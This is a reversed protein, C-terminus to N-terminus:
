RGAEVLTALIKGAHNEGRDGVLPLWFELRPQLDADRASARGRLWRDIGAGDLLPLPPEAGWDFRQRCERVGPQNWRRRWQVPDLDARSGLLIVESAEPHPHVLWVREFADRFGALIAAFERVRIRYLQLWHVAVGEPELRSAVLRYFEPTFLPASYPLWPESPQCIITQWRRSERHLYARADAFEIHPGEGGSPFLREFEWPFAVRGAPSRLAALVEPEVEIATIRGRHSAAAAAVTTGGGVGVVLGEDAGGHFLTPLIGLLVQTPLDAFSPAGPDIPSTGEVRGGVKLFCTNEQTWREITVRALRGERSYLVERQRYGELAHGSRIDERNWQFVGAGVLSEDLGGALLSGLGALLAAATTIALQPRPLEARWAFGATLAAVATVVATGVLTTLSGLAPILFLGAALAGITGGLFGTAQLVGAERALQAEDRSWGAALAPFLLGAACSAPLVCVIVAVIKVSLVTAGTTGVVALTKVYAGPTGAICVMAIVQTVAWASWALPILAGAGLRRVLGPVMLSGLAGGVLLAAAAMGLVLLSTGLIEGLLRVWTVQLVFTIIGSVLAQTSRSGAHDARVTAQKSRRSHERAGRATMAVAVLILVAVACGRSGFAPLVLVPTVLAGVASGLDLSAVWRGTRRMVQDPELTGSRFWAPVAGGLALAPFVLPLAVLLKGGVTGLGAWGESWAPLAWLTWLHVFLASVVALASWTRPALRIRAALASGLAAGLLFLAITISIGDLDSGLVHGLARAWLLEACLTAAGLLFLAAAGAPVPNRETM